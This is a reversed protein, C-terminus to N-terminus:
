ALDGLYQGWPVTGKYTNRRGGQTVRTQISLWGEAELTDLHRRVQRPSLGSRKGILEQSPWCVCNPDMSLSVAWAVARTPAPLTSSDAIALRWAFVKSFDRKGPM